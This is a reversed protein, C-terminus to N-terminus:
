VSSERTSEGVETTNNAVHEQQLTDNANQKAKPMFFQEDKEVQEKIM